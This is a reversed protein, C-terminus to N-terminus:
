CGGAYPTGIQDMEALPRGYTHDRYRWVGAVAELYMTGGLVAPDTSVGDKTGTGGLRLSVTASSNTFSEIYFSGALTSISATWGQRDVTSSLSQKAAPTADPALIQQATAAQNAPSPTEFSWRMVTATFAAAGAPTLPAQKQAILVAQDLDARGGLCGDALTGGPGNNPAPGAAAPGPQPQSTTDHGRGAFVAVAVVAVIVALVLALLVWLWRPRGSRGPSGGSPAPPASAAQTPPTSM